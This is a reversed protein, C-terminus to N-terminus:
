RRQPRWTPSIECVRPSRTINTARREDVRQVYLDCKRMFAIRTGDPSWTPESESRSGHSLRRVAGTRVDLVRARVIALDAARSPPPRLEACASAAAGALAAGLTRLAAGRIV